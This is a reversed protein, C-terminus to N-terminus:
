KFLHTIFILVCAIIVTSAIMLAIGRGFFGSEKQLKKSYEINGKFRSLLLEKKESSLNKPAVLTAYASVEYMWPDYTWSKKTQGEKEVSLYLGANGGMRHIDSQVLGKAQEITTSKHIVPLDDVHLIEKDDHVDSRDYLWYFRNPNFENKQKRSISTRHKRRLPHTKDSTKRDISNTKQTLETM